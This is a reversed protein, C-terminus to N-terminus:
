SNCFRKLSTINTNREIKHQSVCCLIEWEVAPKREGFINKHNVGDFNHRACIHFDLM